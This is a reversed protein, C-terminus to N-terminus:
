GGAMPLCFGEEEEEKKGDKGNKRKRERGEWERIEKGKGEKGFEKRKDATLRCGIKIPKRAEREGGWAKPSLM